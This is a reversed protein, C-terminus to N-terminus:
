SMKGVGRKAIRHFIFLALINQLRRSRYSLTRISLPSANLTEADLYRGPLCSLRGVSELGFVVPRFTPSWVVKGDNANTSGGAPQLRERLEELIQREIGAHTEHQHLMEVRLM